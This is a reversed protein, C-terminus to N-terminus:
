TEPLPNIPNQFFLLRHKPKGSEPIVCTTWNVLEVGYSFKCHTFKGRRLKLENGTTYEVARIRDPKIGSAEVDLENKFRNVRQYLAKQRRQKSVLAGRTGLESKM